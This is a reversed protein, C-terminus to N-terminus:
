FPPSQEGPVDKAGAPDDVDLQVMATIKVAVVGPAVLPVAATVSETPADCETFRDPVADSKAILAAM